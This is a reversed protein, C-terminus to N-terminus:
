WEAREGTERVFRDYLYYDASLIIFGPKNRSSTLSVTDAMALIKDLRRKIDGSYFGSSLELAASIYREYERIELTIEYDDSLSVALATFEKSGQGAGERSTYSYRDMAALITKEFDPIAIDTGNTLPSQGGIADRCMRASIEAAPYEKAYIVRSNFQEM